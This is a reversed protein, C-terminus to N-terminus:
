SREAILHFQRAVSRYPDQTGAIWELECIEDLDGTEETQNLHDTFIRVGYWERTTAGLRALRSTIDQLTDARAPIYEDGIQRGAKISNLADTWKRQLGSRMAIADRNLSLISLLGRHRVLKVLTALMPGPDDLYMLVSHCCALDFDTGALGAAHEGDARVLQIRKAVDPPQDAVLSEGADAMTADPEVVVVEHGHRALM